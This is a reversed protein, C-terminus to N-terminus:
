CCSKVSEECAKIYYFRCSVTNKSWVLTLILENLKLCSVSNVTSSCCLTVNIITYSQLRTDSDDGNGTPINLWVSSVLNTTPYSTVCHHLLLKVRINDILVSFGTTFRIFGQMFLMSWLTCIENCGNQMFHVFMFSSNLLRSSTSCKKHILHMRICLCLM